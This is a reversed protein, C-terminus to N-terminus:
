NDTNEILSEYILLFVIYKDNIFLFKLKELMNSLPTGEHGNLIDQYSYIYKRLQDRSAHYFHM